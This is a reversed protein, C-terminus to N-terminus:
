RRRAASAPSAGNAAGRGAAPGSRVDPTAPDYQRSAAAPHGGGNGEAEAEADGDEVAGAGADPGDGEGGEEGEGEARMHKPLWTGSTVLFVLGDQLLRPTGIIRAFQAALFDRQDQSDCELDLTRDAALLSLYLHASKKKGSRRMVDTAQGTAVGTIAGVGLEQYSDTEIGAATEEGWRLLLEEQTTELWLLRAHPWGRRGHKQLVLGNLLVLLFNTLDHDIDERITPPV